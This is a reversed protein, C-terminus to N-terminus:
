SRLGHLHTVASCILVRKSIRLDAIIRRLPESKRHEEKKKNDRQSSRNTAFFSAIDRRFEIEKGTDIAIREALGLAHVIDDTLKGTKELKHLRDMATKSAGANRTSKSLKEAEDYAKLARGRWSPQGYGVTAGSAVFGIVRGISLARSLALKGREGINKKTLEEPLHPRRYTWM